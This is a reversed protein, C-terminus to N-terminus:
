HYFDDVKISTIEYNYKSVKAQIECLTMYIYLYIFLIYYNTKKNNIFYLKTLLYLISLFSFLTM